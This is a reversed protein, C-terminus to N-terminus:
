KISSGGKADRTSAQHPQNPRVQEQNRQRPPNEPPAPPAPSNAAAQGKNAQGARRKYHADLRAEYDGNIAASADWVPSDKIEQRSMDVYVKNEERSIRIAWQPAVLVKKGFWWNSTDVVLYRVEWTQDDIIFDEVHGIEEDSGQIHYGHMEEDSRLYINRPGNQSRKELEDSWKGSALMSPSSSAGWMGAGGWYHPYNYHRYFALEQQHSVFKDTDINPSDKIRKKTLALNFEKDAWNVKSFSIPSILVERGDLSLARPTKVVLYRVMWNNEDLLFKVVKGIDGDSAHVKHSELDKLSRLM